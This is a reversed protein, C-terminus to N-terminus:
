EEFLDEIDYFNNIKKTYRENLATKNRDFVDESLEKIINIMLLDEFILSSNRGYKDKHLGVINKFPNGYKSSYRSNTYSFLVRLINSRDELFQIYLYIIPDINSHNPSTLYKEGFELFIRPNDLINKASRKLEKKYDEDIHSVANEALLDMDHLYEYNM